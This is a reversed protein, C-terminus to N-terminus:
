FIQGKVFFEMHLEGGQMKLKEEVHQGKHKFCIWSFICGYRVFQKTEESLELLGKLDYWIRGIKALPLEALTGSIQTQTKNTTQQKTQDPKIKNETKYALLIWYLCKRM